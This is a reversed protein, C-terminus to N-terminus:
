VVIPIGLSVQAALGFTYIDLMGPHNSSLLGASKSYKAIDNAYLHVEACQCILTKDISAHM